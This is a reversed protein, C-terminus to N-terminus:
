YKKESDFVTKVTQHDMGYTLVAILPLCSM